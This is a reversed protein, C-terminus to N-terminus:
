HFYSTRIDFEESLSRLQEMLEPTEGAQTIEGILHYSKEFAWGRAISGDGESADRLSAKLVLDKKVLGAEGQLRLVLEEDQAPDYQGYVTVVRGLYFDPLARPYITEENIRGYDARLNVLIADNIQNLFVPLDEDIDEVRPAIVTLGRNRYALLDMLYRNVTNGGGFTFITNGHTNEATIANILERGTLNGTTPRGDSIVVINAPLGRRPTGRVVPSMAKYVDTSGRSTMGKLFSLAAEIEEGSVPTLGERFSQPTDRFVIVNFRDTPRLLDLGARLGRITLDLKRQMISNSADIIYTVDKPLPEISEGAKPFIQLRFYGQGSAPDVYTAAEIDVLADMGEYGSERQINRRAFDAAFLTVDPLEPLISPDFESLLLDSSAGIDLVEEGEADAGLVGDEGSAADPLPGLGLAGGGYGAGGEGIGEGEELLRYSNSRVYRRAIEIDKRAQEQAIALVQAEIGQLVERDQELDHERKMGEQAIREALDDEVEELGSEALPLHKTAEELLDRVSGPRSAMTLNEDPPAEFRRQTVDDLLTVRVRTPLMDVASNARILYIDPAVAYLASYLMLAVTFSLFLM